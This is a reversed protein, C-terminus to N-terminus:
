NAPEARCAASWGGKLLTLEELRAEYPRGGSEVLFLDGIRPALPDTSWILLRGFEIEDDLIEYGSPNFPRLAGAAGM